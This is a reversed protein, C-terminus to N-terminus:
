VKIRPKFLHIQFQPKYKLVERSLVATDNFNKGSTRYPKFKWKSNGTVCHTVLITLVSQHNNYPSSKQTLTVKTRRLPNNANSSNYKLNVFQDGLWGRVGVFFAERDYMPLTRTQM